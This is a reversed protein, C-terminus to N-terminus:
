PALPARLAVGHLNGRARFVARTDAQLALALGAVAARGGAVEVDDGVDRLRRDVLATAGIQDDVHRHGIRVGREPRRDLYRRGLARHRQLHGRARLVALQEADAAAARRLERAAALAVHERAQADLHRLAQVLLLALQEFLEPLHRLPPLLARSSRQSM